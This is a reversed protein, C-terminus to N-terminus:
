LRVCTGAGAPPATSLSCGLGQCCPGASYCPGGWGACTGGDLMGADLPGADVSCEREFATPAPAYGSYYNCGVTETIGNCGCVFRLSQCVPAGPAPVRPVCTGTASCGDAIKYGCVLNAACDGERNCPAGQTGSGATAGGGGGAGGSGDGNGGSGDARTSASGCRIGFCGVLLASVLLGHRRRMADNHVQPPAPHGCSCIMTISSWGPRDPAATASQSPKWLSTASPPRPRASRV